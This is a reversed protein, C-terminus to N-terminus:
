VSMDFCDDQSDHLNDLKVAIIVVGEPAKEHLDTTDCKFCLFFPILLQTKWDSSWSVTKSHISTHIWITKACARVYYEGFEFAEFEYGSALISVELVGCGCVNVGDLKCSVGFAPSM